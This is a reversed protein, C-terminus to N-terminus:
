SLHPTAFTLRWDQEVAAREASPHNTLGFQEEGCLIAYIAESSNAARLHNRVNPDRLKRAICALAQLHNGANDAPSLLLAVLDSKSGDAAGFDVAPALRAFTVVSNLLGPVFTHPLSVGAGPGFAPLEASELVLSRIAAATVTQNTAAHDSLRKLAHRKNRARLDPIVQEITLLDRMIM